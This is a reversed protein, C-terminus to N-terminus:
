IPEETLNIALTSFVLKPAINAQLDLQAQQVLPLFRTAQWPPVGGQEASLPTHFASALVQSFDQLFNNRREKSEDVPSDKRKSKAKSGEFASFLCLLAYLNGQAAAIAARQAAQLTEKRTENRLIQLGMGPRGGYVAALLQAEELSAGETQLYQRMEDPPLEALPYLACRSRITQLLLSADRATLVFLMDSPPEELIKLLANAAPAMMREADRILVARGKSSLGTRYMKSRVERIRDVKIQGSLGEGAITIVESSEGNLVAKAGEGGAPFLYDAALCRAWHNRGCGDPATLLVAHPLCNTQLAHQLASRTHENGLITSLAFTSM